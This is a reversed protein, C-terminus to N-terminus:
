TWIVVYELTVDNIDYFPALHDLKKVLYDDVSWTHGRFLTVFTKKYQQM